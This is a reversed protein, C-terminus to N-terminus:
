KSKSGLPFAYGISATMGQNKAKLNKGIDSLGVVYRADVLFKGPGAPLALGAGMQMGLEFRKPKTGYYRNFKAEKDLMMAISPGANIYVPGFSYKALVPIELYNLDFDTSKGATKFRTGKSVFNLEPQISLGGLGTFINVGVGGQFGVKFKEGSVNKIDQKSISIGAKPIIEINQANAATFVMLSLFSGLLLKKM